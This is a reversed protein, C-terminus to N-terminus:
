VRITSSSDAKLVLEDQSPSVCQVIRNDAREFDRFAGKELKGESKGRFSREVEVVRIFAFGVGYVGM